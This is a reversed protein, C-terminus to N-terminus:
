AGEGQRLAADVAALVEGAAAAPDDAGTVASVVAVGDAGAAVLAGVREVTIGAIATVPLGPRREKLRRALASFGDIGIPPHPNTKTTTRFVGGVSAYDIAAVEAAEAEDATHVTLGVIRDPGLIARAEGASIDGHGVHVGDAGAALAVDVRDNVLLPVRHGSAELIARAADIQARTPADKARLQLLTAGGDVAARAVPVLPAAGGEGMDLVVYCRLDVPPM